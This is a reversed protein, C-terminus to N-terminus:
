NGVVLVQFSSDQPVLKVGYRGTWTDLESVPSETASVLYVEGTSPDIAITRAQQRTPLLQIVNYSDAVDQHIITLNGDGGGNPSYIQGRVADYAIADVGTEIALTAVVAGGGADLVVLKKNDCAAFLRLHSGDVALAKPYRCNSGAQFAELGAFGDIPQYVGMSGHWVASRWDLSLSGGKARALIEAVDFRLIEANNVLAAYFSGMGDAVAPGAFGCVIAEAVVARAAPDVFTFLSEWGLANGSRYASCPSEPPEQVTRGRSAWYDRLRARSRAKEDESREWQDLVEGNAYPAPAGAPGASVAMLIGTQSDYVLARPGSKIPVKALVKFTRRDFIDVSSDGSDSVYGFEGARDLAVAHAVGFGTLTGALSGTKVDVVQVVHSRAIYLRGAVPDMTLYDWNGQGGIVWAKKIFYPHDPLATPVAPFPSQAALAMACSLLCFPLARRM